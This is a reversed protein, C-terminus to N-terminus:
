STVRSARRPTTPLRRERPLLLQRRGGPLRLVLQARRATAAGASRRAPRSHSRRPQSGRPRRAALRIAHPLPRAAGQCRGSRPFARGIHGCYYLFDEDDPDLALAQASLARMKTYDGDRQLAALRQKFDTRRKELDYLVDNRAANGLERAAPDAVSRDYADLLPLAETNRGRAALVRAQLILLEPADKNDASAEQIASDAKALDKDQVAREADHLSRKFRIDQPSGPPLVHLKVNTAEAKSAVVRTSELLKAIEKNDPDRRAAFSLERM